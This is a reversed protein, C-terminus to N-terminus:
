KSTGYVVGRTPDPNANLPKRKNDRLHKLRYSLTQERKRTEAAGRSESVSTLVFDDKKFLGLHHAAHIEYSVMDDGEIAVCRTVSADKAAALKKAADRAPRPVSSWRMTSGAPGKASEPPSEPATINAPKRDFLKALRDGAPASGPILGAVAAAALSTRLLRRLERVRLRRPADSVANGRPAHSRTKRPLVSSPLRLNM